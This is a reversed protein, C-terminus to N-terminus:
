RGRRDRDLMGSSGERPQALDNNSSARWRCLCSVSWSRRPRYTRCASSFRSARRNRGAGLERYTTLDILNASVRVHDAHFPLAALPACRACHLSRSFRHRRTGARERGGECKRLVRAFRLDRRLLPLLRRMERRVLRMPGLLQQQLGTLREDLLRRTEIRVEGADVAAAAEREALAIATVGAIARVPADGAQIRDLAVLQDLRRRHRGTVPRSTEIQARGGAPTVRGLHRIVPEADVAGGSPAANRM